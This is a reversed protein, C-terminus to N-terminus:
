RTSPPTAGSDHAPMDPAPKARKRIANLIAELGRGHVPMRRRRRQDRREAAAVGDRTEAM